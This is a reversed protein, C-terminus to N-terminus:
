LPYTIVEGFPPKFQTNSHIVWVVPCGPDSDAPIDFEGDSFVVLVKPCTEKAWALLPGIRTGGRGKFTLTQPTEGPGLTRIQKIQTDFDLVQMQEPQLVQKIYTMESIFANFQAQEVSGSTDVAVALTELGESCQSPLLYDPFFRRNLKRYSFDRKVQDFLFKQLLVNWPLKPNLLKDLMVAVDGPVTGPADGMMRSRTSAKVLIDTIQQEVQQIQEPTAQPAPSGPGVMPSPPIAPDGPNTSPNSGPAPPTIDAMPLPKQKNGSSEQNKRILDYVEETTKGAFKEDLLAMKPISYGAQKLLLNIVYDGARNYDQLDRQGIRTLHMLAIHWAEHALLFIQEDKSLSQFFDPNVLLELHENVCATPIEPKWSFKLSFLITSLFVSNKTMMLGIKAKDFADQLATTPRFPLM